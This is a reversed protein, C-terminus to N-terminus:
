LRAIISSRWRNTVTYAVSNVVSVNSNSRLRSHVFDNRGDYIVNRRIIDM